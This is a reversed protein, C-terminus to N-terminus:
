AAPERPSWWGGHADALRDAAVPGWSGPEYVLPPPPAALLPDVIRWAQEVEDQRAFLMPDGHMADGLLRDYAAIMGRRERCALLEVTEGVGPPLDGNARIQASLAIEVDPGLRFRFTNPAADRFEFGSFTRQPAPRLKVLVETATVPLKKGARILFPVGAWRWSEVYLRAAAYTEVRSDAAVGAEDRYGAFQGRVLDDRGLAPIAGLLKAKEDRLGEGISGVPPEMALLAVTQLLHNQVVDRVAGTEEYFRGRGEVGFSEAMTIQVSEIFQRNWIPELFSNAFRFHILNHIPTKGLFHDIRFIAREDFREHLIRNLRRASALDRGFPKELVVRAGDACGASALGRVVLAFASPPIALYFTPHAAAGLAARIAAFTSLDAYDGGVYSLRQALERFAVSDVGGGHTQISERAREHIRVSGAPDRGVAVVPANLRGRKLMAHLAPFIKKFALDGTAGFIVLADSAVRAM